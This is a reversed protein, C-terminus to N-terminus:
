TPSAGFKMIASFSASEYESSSISSFYRSSSATSSSSYSRGDPVFTKVHFMRVFALKEPIPRMRCLHPRNAHAAEEPRWPRRRLKRPRREGTPSAVEGPPPATEPAPLGGPTERGRLALHNGSRRFRRGSCSRTCSCRPKGCGAVMGDDSTDCAGWRRRQDEGRQNLEGVRGCRQIRAPFSPLRRTIRTPFRPLFRPIRTLDTHSVPLTSSAARQIQAMYVHSSSPIMYALHEARQQFM